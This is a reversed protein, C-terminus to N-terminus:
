RTSQTTESQARQIEQYLLKEKAGTKEPPMLELKALADAYRKYHFDIVALRYIVAASDSGHRLAALYYNGANAIDNRKFYVDGAQEQAWSNYPAITTIKLLYDLAKQEQGLQGYFNAAAGLNYPNDPSITLAKQILQEIESVGMDGRADHGSALNVYAISASDPYIEIVREWLLVDNQWHRTQKFTTFGLTACIAIFVVAVVSRQWARNSMSFVAYVAVGLLLYVWITSLYAYRDAMAQRGVKVIGIVPLLSIVYFAFIVLPYHVGKLYLAVAVVTLALFSLLPFISEFSPKLSIEEFPYFPSLNEPYFISVLYHLYAAAANIMRPLYGLIETSQPEQYLLTIIVSAIALLIYIMKGQLLIKLTDLSVSLREIKKLPYVDLLIFAVPLSVAVPKSMLAFLTFILTLNSYYKEGGSAAKLYTILASLSFIACLLGKRESIWAVSEVHQPHLSFLTAAFLSSFLAFKHRDELLREVIGAATAPTRAETALMILRYSLFSFLLVTVLHLLLNTIKSYTADIGWIAHEIAFSLTTLPHWNSHHQGSFISPLNEFALSQVLKSNLYINDDWRLVEHGSIGSYAAITAIALIVFYGAVFAKSSTEQKQM